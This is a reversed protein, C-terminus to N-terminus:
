APLTADISSYDSTTYSRWVGQLYEYGINFGDGAPKTARIVRM